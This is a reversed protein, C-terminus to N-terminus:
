RQRRQQAQQVPIDWHETYAGNGLDITLVTGSLTQADSKVPIVLRQRDKLKSIDAKVAKGNKPNTWTLTGKIDDTLPERLSIVIQSPDTFSVSQPFMWKAWAVSSAQRSAEDRRALEAKDAFAGSGLFEFAGYDTHGDELSQGFFDRGGNNPVYMGTNICPSDERLKYGGLTALGTGGTGPAVFKPDAVLAEPDDPLGNKWPGFYCNHLFLTGPALDPKLEEDYNRVQTDGSSYVTRFRGQGTAYFINNYFKAGLLEPERTLFFDIDALGYDVYFVNNYVLSNDGELPGQMQILHTHDNESINYRTVNEFINYMLLMLGHNNKSYNYQCICRKCNFDFDYAFGDGNYLNRATDYVENFQMITEETNQIWCAAVHPWWGDDGPLDPFGARMCSRHIENYEILGRYPGNVFIGDGGINDMYNGRVVVNNRAGRCVIGCKDVREIRNGEILVDNIVTPENPGTIARGSAQRATHVLIASSSYNVYLGNGGLQGWIDHVYNDKIVFHDFSGGDSVRVVIGQRGIGIKYPEYSVVEMGYVEWHSVNEMLIGAGEASGLNIVPRGSGEGYSSMTIPRGEEGSGKVAIQGYFTDGKRFLIRDGPLFTVSNVKEISKWATAVSLGDASDNGQASVFYTKDQASLTAAALFVALIVSLKKM